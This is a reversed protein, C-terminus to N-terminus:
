FGSPVTGNEPLAAKERLREAMAYFLKYGKLSFIQVKCNKAVFSFYRRMKKIFHKM